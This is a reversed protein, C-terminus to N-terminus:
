PSYPEAVLKFQDQAMKMRMVEIGKAACIQAIEKATNQDMMSGLFVRSPRPMNFPHGPTIATTFFIARWEQEYNWGEYKHLVSLLPGNVPFDRRDKSVLGHM